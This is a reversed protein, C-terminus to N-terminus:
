RGAHEQAPSELPHSPALSSPGVSARAPPAWRNWGLRALGAIWFAGGTAVVILLPEMPARMRPSGYFVLAGAVFSAGFLLPVLAARWRRRIAVLGAASLLLVLTPYLVAFPRWIPMGAETPPSAPTWFQVMRWFLLHPLWSIHTLAWHEGLQTMTHDLAVECPGWCDAQAQRDLVARFDPVLLPNVWAGKYGTYSLAGDSYSGAIVTGDMTTLPVFAGGTVVYNRVTWPALVLVMGLALLAVGLAARKLPLMGSRVAVVAWIVVAALAYIGNPRALATLGVLVGAALWRWSVPRRVVRMVVLCSATLLCIALSESYLWADFIFLQPYTAAVLGAVLAPWRGFLDRAILSVLVCTVAGVVSLALRAHLPDHGTLLYVGALFIPYLPPRMTSPHGPAVVCLCHWQLLHQALADYVVADAFPVYNRAVTLNYTVRVALALVFILASAPLGESIRWALARAITQLSNGAKM